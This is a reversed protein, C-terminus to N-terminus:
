DYTMRGFYYEFWEEETMLPIKNREDLEFAEVLMDWIERNEPQRLEKYLIQAQNHKTDSGNLGTQYDPIPAVPETKM